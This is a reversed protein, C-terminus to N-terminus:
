NRHNSMENTIRNLQQRILERQQERYVLEKSENTLQGTEDTYVHQAM